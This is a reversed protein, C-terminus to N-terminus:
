NDIVLLEKPSSTLVECGDERVVVTDEIRVGGWNPLYIGPEVTVVMGSELKTSDKPSLRPNEHIELGLSHGLGHGFYDGYGAGDIIDRAVKDVESGKVGAKVTKTAEQQAELVTQYIKQQEKDPQKGVVLTRTMDSHYGGYVTGFDMTLFDGEEVKKNSAVGHPLASRKGSAVIFDFANKSAGEKKMFFELELAIDRENSGVKIYDRIHDFAHDTIKVAQRIKDIEVEDKIMRVAEVMGLIPKLRISFKNKYELYTNYSIYGAEFGLVEIELKFILEKILSLKSDKFEMVDYDLAEKKAQETYRFDTVLIADKQTILVTGATGTFGTMYRRNTPNNILLADIKQDVLKQQLSKIRGRMKVVGIKFDLKLM